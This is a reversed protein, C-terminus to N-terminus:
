APLRVVYGREALHDMVRRTSDEVSHTATDVTLDPNLPEEFPDDVGTLKTGHLAASGRYLGKPDRQRCVEVPCNLWIETFRDGVTARAAQRSTEYPTIMAVIVAVGNRALMRAVYSVRRAHFERDKRSYGLEPSFMKRVEDGDLVEVRRGMARLRDAVSRSVSTKGSCPVGEIWAVFGQSADGPSDAM